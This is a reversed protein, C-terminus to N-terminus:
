KNIASCARSWWSGRQEQEKMISTKLKQMKKGEMNEIFEIGLKFASIEQQRFIDMWVPRAIISYDILDPPLNITLELLHSAHDQVTHFIHYRDKIIQTMLLCAGHSSIDIIRSSFPGALVTGDKSNIANVTVPLYDPNRVSKRLEIVMNYGSFSKGPNRTLFEPQNKEWKIM